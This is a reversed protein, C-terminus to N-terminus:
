GGPKKAADSWPRVSAAPIPRAPHPDLGRSRFWYAIREWYLGPEIRLVDGADSRAMVLDGWEQPSRQTHDVGNGSKAGRGLDAGVMDNLYDMLVDTDATWSQIVANSGDEVALISDDGEGRTRWEIRM